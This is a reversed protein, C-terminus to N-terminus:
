QKEQDGGPNKGDKQVQVEQRFFPMFFFDVVPLKVERGLDPKCCLIAKRGNLCYRLAQCLVNGGAKGLPGHVAAFDPFHKFLGKVGSRINKPEIKDRGRRVAPTGYM